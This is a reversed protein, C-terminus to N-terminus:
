KIDERYKSSLTYNNAKIVEHLEDLSLGWERSVRESVYGDYYCQLDRDTLTISGNKELM